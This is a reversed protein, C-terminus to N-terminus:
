WRLTYKRGDKENVFTISYPDASIKRYGSKAFADDGLLGYLRIIPYIVSNSGMEASLSITERKNETSIDPSKFGTRITAIDSLAIRDGQPNILSLKRIDSPDDKADRSTSVTISSAGYQGDTYRM